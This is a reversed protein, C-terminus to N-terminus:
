GDHHIDLKQNREPIDLLKQVFAADVDALLRNSKPPVPKIRHEGCIYATFPL